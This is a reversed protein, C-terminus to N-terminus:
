KRQQLETTESSCTKCHVHSLQWRRDQAWGRSMVELQVRRWARRWRGPGSAEKVRSWELSSTKEPKVKCFDWFGVATKEEVSCVLRLDFDTCIHPFFVFFLPEFYICPRPFSFSPRASWQPLFLSCSLALRLSFSAFWLVAVLSSGAASNFNKSFSDTEAPPDILIAPCVGLEWSARCCCTVPRVSCSM